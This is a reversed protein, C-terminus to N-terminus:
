VKMLVAHPSVEPFEKCELFRQGRDVDISAPLFLVFSMEYYYYCCHAVTAVNEEMDNSHM